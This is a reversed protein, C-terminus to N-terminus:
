TLRARTGCQLCVLDSMRATWRPERSPGPRAQAISDAAEIRFRWYEPTYVGAPSRSVSASGHGARATSRRASRPRSGPRPSRRRCRDRARRRARRRLRRAPHPPDHTRGDRPGRGADPGRARRRCGASQSSRRSPRSSAATGGDSRVRASTREDAEDDAPHWRGAGSCGRIPMRRLGITGDPRRDLSSRSGRVAAQGRGGLRSDDPWPVSGRPRRGRRGGRGARAQGVLLEGAELALEVVDEVLVRLEGLEVGVRDRRRGLRDLELVDEAVVDDPAENRASSASAFAGARSPSKMTTGAIRPSYRGRVAMVSRRGGFSGGGRGRSPRGAAAGAVHRRALQRSDGVEVDGLALVLGEVRPQRDVALAGEGLGVRGVGAEGRSAAVARAASSASCGSRPM